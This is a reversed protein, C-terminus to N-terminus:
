QLDPSPMRVAPDHNRDVVEALGAAAITGRQMGDKLIHFLLFNTLAQQRAIERAVTAPPSAELNANWAVDGARRESEIQLVQLWSGEAQAPLGQAGLWRQQEPSLPVAPVQTGLVRDVYHFAQSMRANYARRRLAAEQGVASALMDGRIAAPAVPQVLLTAHDKAANVAAQDAYTGGSWLSSAQQDGDPNASPSACLGAAADMANCYHALHLQAMSAVGQAVGNHSPMGPGAAGRADHVRAVARAVAYGQVSAAQAAVGGDLSACANPSPTHEDAIAANRFDRQVRAQALNAADAIQQQAGVQARQYNSVQSFGRELVSNLSSELNTLGGTVASEVRNVANQLVNQMAQIAAHVLADFTPWAAHASRPAVTIAGLAVSLAVAALAAARRGAARRTPRAM